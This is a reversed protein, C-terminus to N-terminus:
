NYLPRRPSVDIFFFRRTKEAPGTIVISDLHYPTQTSTKQKAVLPVVFVCCLLTSHMKSSIGGVTEQFHYNKQKWQNLSMFFVM